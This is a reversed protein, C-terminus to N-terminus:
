NLLESEIVYDSPKEITQVKNYDSFAITGTVDGSKTTGTYEIKIIQKTVIDVWVTLSTIKDSSSNDSKFYTNYNSILKAAKKFQDDNYKIIYKYASVGETEVKSSENITYMNKDQLISLVNKRQTDNLNAFPIPLVNTNFELVSNAISAFQDKDRIKIWNNKLKTETTKFSPSVRSDTSSISSYRVYNNDGIKILDGAFNMPIGESTMNISFNGKALLSNSSRLDLFMRSNIEATGKMALKQDITVSSTELMKENMGKFVVEASPTGFVVILGILAVLGVVVGIIWKNRKSMGGKNNSKAM